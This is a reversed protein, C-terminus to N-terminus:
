ISAAEGSEDAQFYIVACRGMRTTKQNIEQATVKADASSLGHMILAKEDIFFEVDDNKSGAGVGSTTNEGSSRSGGRADTRGGTITIRSKAWSNYGIGIGASGQGGVAKVTGGSININVNGGARSASGIGAGGWGGDAEVTGGEISISFNNNTVRADGGIGAAEYEGKAIVTGGKVTISGGRIGAYNIQGSKNGEARLTGASSGDGQISTITLYSNDQVYVCNWQFM